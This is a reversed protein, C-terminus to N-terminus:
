RTGRCLSHGIKRRCKRDGAPVPEFAPTRGSFGPDIDDINRCPPVSLRIRRVMVVLWPRDIRLAFIGFPQSIPEYALPTV